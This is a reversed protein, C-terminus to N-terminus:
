RDKGGGRLRTAKTQEAKTKIDKWGAMLMCNRRFRDQRIANGIANGLAAGAVYSASGFAFFGRQVGMAQNECSAMAYELGPGPGVKVWKAEAVSTAALLALVAAAIRM